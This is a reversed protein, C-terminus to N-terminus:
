LRVGALASRFASQTGTDSVSVSVSPAHLTAHHGKFLYTCAWVMADLRDPSSGVLKGNEDWSTETLEEILSELGNTETPAMHGIQDDVEWLLAVPEARTRKSKSANVTHIPLNSGSQNLVETVMKGGQNVEAVVVGGYEACAMAVRMAWQHPTADTISLDELVYLHGNDDRGVVVIGCTGTGSPPDVGVAIKGLSQEVLERRDGQYMSRYVDAIKWLAGEVDDIVEGLVEQRYLRTGKYKQELYAKWDEDVFRNDSTVARSFHIRSDKEWKKLIKHPRPTSTVVVRPRGRRRSLEAQDWAESLQPNAFAEEFVDIEINTLARLRDVDRPNPTGIVWIKAGNPYSVCAGGPASPNFRASNNSQTILGNPGEVCSAIGDGLTPAIIRARLDPSNLAEDNLWKMGAFTKGAGRGALLVWGRWDPDLPPRQHPQLSNSATLRARLGDVLAEREM